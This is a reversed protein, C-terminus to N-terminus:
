CLCQHFPFSVNTHIVFVAMPSRRTGFATINLSTTTQRFCKTSMFVSCDQEVLLGLWLAPVAHKCLFWEGLSPALKLALVQLSSTFLLFALLFRFSDTTILSLPMAKTQSRFAMLWTWDIQLGALEGPNQKFVFYSTQGLKRYCCGALHM